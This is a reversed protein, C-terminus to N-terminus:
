QAQLLNPILGSKCSNVGLSSSISSHEFFTPGIYIRLTTALIIFYDHKVTIANEIEIELHFPLTSSIFFVKKYVIVTCSAM